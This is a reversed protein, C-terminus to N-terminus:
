NEKRKKVVALAALSITSVALAIVVYVTADGTPPTVDSNIEYMPNTYEVGNYYVVAHTADTTPYTDLMFVESNINQRFIDEGIMNNLAVAVAGSEFEEATATTVDSDSTYTCRFYNGGGYCYNLGAVGEEIIVTSFDMECTTRDNWMIAFTNIRHDYVDVNVDAYPIIDQERGAVTVTDGDITVEGKTVACFAYKVDNYTFTYYKGSTLTDGSKVEIYSTTDAITVNTGDITVVGKIPAYFYYSTDGVKFTYETQVVATDGNAIEKAATANNISGGVYCYKFEADPTTAYGVLGSVYKVGTIDGNSFCYTLKPCRFIRGSNAYGIVGGVNNGGGIVNGNNGCGTLVWNEDASNNLYGIVGGANGTAEIDGNNICNTMSVNYKGIGLIGGVIRDKNNPNPATCSVNANNTCNIFKTNMFGYATGAIGGMRWAKDAGWNGYINVEGNNVCNEFIMSGDITAVNTDYQSGIIGGAQGGCAANPYASISGNNVCNKFHLLRANGTYGVMGGLQVTKAGNYFVDGNNVCDEMIYDAYSADNPGFRGVLGGCYNDMASVEGYNVCNKMYTAGEIVGAIGGPRGMAYIRGYNACDEMVLQYTGVDERAGPAYGIIGGSDLNASPFDTTVNGYNACKKFTLVYYTGKTDKDVLGNGVLGAMGRYSSTASAKNCVNEITVNAGNAAYHALVGTAEDYGAEGAVDSTVAGALTLNKVNGNLQEFVPVTTTITKGNGDLSGTFNAEYTKDITIDAALYYSGDAKMAAFDAASNIATGEPKYDAAVAGIVVEDEAAVGLPAIAMCSMVMTLTLLILLAKKM